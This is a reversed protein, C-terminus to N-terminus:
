DPHRPYPDYDEWGSVGCRNKIQVRALRIQDLFRAHVRALTIDDNTIEVAKLSTRQIFSATVGWVIFVFATTLFVFPFVRGPIRENIALVAMVVTTVALVLLPAYTWFGRWAWYSRHRDCVPCDVTMRRTRIVGLIVIVIAPILTIVLLLFGISIWKPRWVFQKPVFAAAPGGCIICTPPMAGARVESSLLRVRPM